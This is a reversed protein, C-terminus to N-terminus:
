QLNHLSIFAVQNFIIKLKLSSNSGNKMFGHPSNFENNRELTRCQDYLAM